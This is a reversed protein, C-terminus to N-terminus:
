IKKYSQSMKKELLQLNKDLRKEKNSMCMMLISTKASSSSISTYGNHYFVNSNMNADIQM